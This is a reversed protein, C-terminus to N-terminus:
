VARTRSGVLAVQELEGGVAGREGDLLSPEVLLPAHGLHELPPQERGHEPLDEAELRGGAVQGGRAGAQAPVPVVDEREGAAADADHDAVHDPAADLRRGHHRLQPGRHAGVGDVTM